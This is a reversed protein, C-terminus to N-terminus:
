WSLLSVCDGRNQQQFTTEVRDAKRSRGMQAVILAIPPIIRGVPDISFNFPNQAHLAASEDVRRRAPM